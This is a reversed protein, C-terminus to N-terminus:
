FNVFQFTAMAQKIPAEYDLWLWEPASGSAWVLYGDKIVFLEQYHLLVKEPGFDRAIQQAQEQSVPPATYEILRAPYEKGTPHERVVIKKDAILSAGPRKLFEDKVLNSAKELDNMRSIISIAIGAVSYGKDGAQKSESVATAREIQHKPELQTWGDPFVIAFAPENKDVKVTDVVGVGTKPIYFFAKDSIKAPSLIGQSIFIAAAIVIIALIVILFFRPNSLLPM